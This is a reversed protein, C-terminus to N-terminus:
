PPNEKVEIINIKQAKTAVLVRPELMSFTESKSIVYLYKKVEKDQGVEITNIYNVM